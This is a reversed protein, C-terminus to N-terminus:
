KLLNPAIDLRKKNEGSGRETADVWAGMHLPEATGTADTGGANRHQGTAETLAETLPCARSGGMVPAGQCAPISAAQRALGGAGTTALCRAPLRM